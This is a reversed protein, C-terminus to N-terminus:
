DIDPKLFGSLRLGIRKFEIVDPGLTPSAMPLDLTKNGFTLTASAGTDKAM